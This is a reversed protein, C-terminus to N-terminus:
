PVKRAWTRMLVVEVCLLALAFLVLPLYHETIDLSSFMEIRTKELRDIEAYIAKLHDADQARFYAAGTAAAIDTLQKDDLDVAEYVVRKGFPSDVVFPAKDYTGVGITYVKVGLSKAIQAAFDPTLTGANNRGDTLLVVVKSKAQSNKLRKVAIAIANGIATTEGAMGVEVHELLTHLIAHDLTLPCQTFANEAFVVMGIPDDPRGDVFGAVVDKAVQLRSRRMEFPGSDMDLARMTGSTDLVLVIAVGESAVERRSRVTQPRALAFLLLAVTVIRLGALYPRIRVRLTPRAPDFLAVSSFRLGHSRAHRGRGALTLWLWAVAWVLGAPVGIWFVWPAAFTM